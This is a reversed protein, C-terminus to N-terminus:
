AMGDLLTQIPVGLCEEFLNPKKPNTNIHLLSKLLQYLLSEYWKRLKPSYNMLLDMSYAFRSHILAQWIIYRAKGPMENAWSMKVQYKMEKEKAKLKKTAIDFQLSDDILVGLYKYSQVVPIGDFEKTSYAPTRRDVRVVIIGSKKKNIGIENEQCWNNTVQMAEHLKDEGEIM